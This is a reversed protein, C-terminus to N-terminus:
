KAPDIISSDHTVEVNRVSSARVKTGRKKREALAADIGEAGLRHVADRILFETEGLLHRDEKSALLRSIYDVVVGSKAALIDRIREAEDAQEDTLEITPLERM